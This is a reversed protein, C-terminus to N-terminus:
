LMDSCNSQRRFSFVVRSAEFLTFAQKGHWSDRYFLFYAISFTRCIGPLRADMRFAQPVIGM